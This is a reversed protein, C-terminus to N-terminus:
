ETSSNKDDQVMESDDLESDTVEVVEAESGDEEIEFGYQETLNVSVEYESDQKATDEELSVSDGQRSEKFEARGAKYEQSFGSFSDKLVSFPKMDDKVIDRSKEFRGFTSWTWFFVVILTVVSAIIGAIIMRAHESKDRLKNLM